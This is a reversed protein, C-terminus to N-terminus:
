RYLYLDLNFHSAKHLYGLIKWIFINILLGQAQLLQDKLLLLALTFYQLAKSFVFSVAALLLSAIM